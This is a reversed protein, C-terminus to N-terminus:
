KAKLSLKQQWAKVRTSVQNPATGGLHDRAAVSGDVSLVQSVDADIKDSFQQLDGLSAQDLRIQKEICHKVAQGVVEHADRFPLGKM